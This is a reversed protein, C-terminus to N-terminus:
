ALAERLQDDTTRAYIMTSAINQHHLATQVLRIDRTKNFLETAFTHRLSHPSYRTNLGAKELWHSLRRQVHRHSLENGSRSQFLPGGPHDSLYEILLAQVEQGFFVKDRRDNKLTRLHIEGRVPDVDMPKLSLASSLRIGTKLMLVFLLHDRRAENGSESRITRLLQDVESPTLVRPPANSTRANELLRAPDDALHNSRHCFKFFNRISSRLANVSTQLKPEGNPKHTAEKTNMFEAVINSTMPKLKTSLSKIEMWRIFLRLHRDYQSISHQSRGNAQLQTLFQDRAEHIEM